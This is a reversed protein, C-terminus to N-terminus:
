RSHLQITPKGFVAEIFSQAFRAEQFSLRTLHLPIGFKYEFDHKWVLSLYALKDMFNEDVLILVDCDKSGKFSEVLSGFIWVSLEGEKFDNYVTGSLWHAIEYM